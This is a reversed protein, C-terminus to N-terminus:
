SSVGRIKERMSIIDSLQSEIEAVHAKQADVNAHAEGFEAILKQMDAEMEEMRRRLFTLQVDMELRELSAREFAIDQKGKKQLQETVFAPLEQSIIQNVTREGSRIDATWEAIKARGEAGFISKESYTALVELQKRKEGAFGDQQAAELSRGLLFAMRNLSKESEIRADALHTSEDALHRIEQLSGPESANMPMGMEQLQHRFEAANAFSYAGFNFQLTEPHYTDAAGIQAPVEGLQEQSLRQVIQALDRAVQPDASEAMMAFEDGGVRYAEVVIGKKSAYERKAADLVRGAAEIAVDGTKSGGERDFFKLFAMDVSIVTSPKGAQLSAELQQFYVGRGYLGTRSDRKSEELALRTEALQRETDSEPRDELSKAQERLRLLEQQGETKGVVDMQEEFARISQREANGIERMKKTASQELRPEALQGLEQVLDQQSISEVASQFIAEAMKERDNSRSRLQRLAEDRSREFLHKKWAIPHADLAGLKQVRISFEAFDPLQTEGEEVVLLGIYKKLFQEYLKQSEIQNPEDQRIKQVMREGRTRMKDFDNVTQLKERLFSIAATEDSMGTSEPLGDMAELHFVAEEMSIRSASLPVPDQDPRVDRLSLAQSLREQLAAAAAPEVNKLVVTFDNGATRYIEFLSFLETVNTDPFAKTLAEMALNQCHIFTRELAIDGLAHDGSSNLRDLEGMNVQILHTKRLQERDAIPLGQEDRRLGAAELTSRLDKGFRGEKLAGTVDHQWLFLEYEAEALKVEDEKGDKRLQAIRDEFLAVGLRQKPTEQVRVQERINSM